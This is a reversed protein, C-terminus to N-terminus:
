FSAITFAEAIAEAFVAAADDAIVLNKDLKEDIGYVRLNGACASTPINLERLSKLFSEVMPYIPNDRDLLQVGPGLFFVRVHDVMRGRKLNRAVRLGQRAREFEGPGSLIVLLIGGMICRM